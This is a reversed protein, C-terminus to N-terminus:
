NVLDCGSDRGLVGTYRIARSSSAFMMKPFATTYPCFEKKRRVNNPGAVKRRVLQLLCRPFSMQLNSDERGLRKTNGSGHDFGAELVVLDLARREDARTLVLTLDIAKMPLLTM